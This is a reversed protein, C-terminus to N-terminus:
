NEDAKENESGALEKKIEDMEDLDEEDLGLKQLYKKHDDKTLTNFWERWEKDEAKEIKGSKPAKKRSLVM